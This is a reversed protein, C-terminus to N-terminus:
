VDEPETMHILLAGCNPCHKFLTVHRALTQKDTLGMVRQALQSNRTTSAWRRDVARFKALVEPLTSQFVWDAEHDVGVWHDCKPDPTYGDTMTLEDTMATSPFIRIIYYVKSRLSEVDEGLNDPVVPSTLSSEM